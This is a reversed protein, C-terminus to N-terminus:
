QKLFRSIVRGISDQLAEPENLATAFAYDTMNEVREKGGKSDIVLLSSFAIEYKEAIGENEKESLDLSRFILKGDALEKAFLSETVTRAEKEIALCTPCRQKNHFYLVLTGKNAVTSEAEKKEQSEEGGGCATMLLLAIVYMFSRKM